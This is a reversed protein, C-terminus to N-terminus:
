AGCMVKRPSWKGRFSGALRRGGAAVFDFSGSIDDAAGRRPFSVTGTVSPDATGDYEVAGTTGERDPFRYAADHRTNPDHWIAIRLWPHEPDVKSSGPRGIAITFAAGDWPACDAWAVAPAPRPEQAAMASATVLCGAVAGWRMAKIM